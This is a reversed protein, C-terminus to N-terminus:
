IQVETPTLSRNAVRVYSERRAYWRGRNQSAGRRDGGEVSRPSCVSNIGSGNGVCLTSLSWLIPTPAILRPWKLWSKEACFCTRGCRQRLLPCRQGPSRRPRQGEEAPLPSHPVPRARKTRWTTSAWPVSATNVLLHKWVHRWAGAFLRPLECSRMSACCKPEPGEVQSERWHGFRLWPTEDMESSRGGSEPSKALLERGKSRRGLSLSSLPLPM